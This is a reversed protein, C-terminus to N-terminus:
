PRNRKNANEIIEEMTAIRNKVATNVDDLLIDQMWQPMKLIRNGIEKWVRMWKRRLVAARGFNFPEVEAAM